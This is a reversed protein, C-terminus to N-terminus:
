GCKERFSGGDHGLGQHNEDGSGVAAAGIVVGFFHRAIEAAELGYGQGEVAGAVDREDAFPESKREKAFGAALMGAIGDVVFDEIGDGVAEDGAAVGDQTEGAGGFSCVFVDAEGM